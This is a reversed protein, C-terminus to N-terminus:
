VEYRRYSMMLERTLQSMQGFDARTVTVANTQTDARSQMRPDVGMSHWRIAVMELCADTFPALEDGAFGGQYSLFVNEQGLTFRSVPADPLLTIKGSDHSVAIEPAGNAPPLTVNIVDNNSFDWDYIILSGLSQIPYNEVWLTPRGTGSQTTDTYARSKIKRNLMQELIKTASNIWRELVPSMESVESDRLMLYQAAEDVTALAEAILAM